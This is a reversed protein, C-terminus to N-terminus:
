THHLDNLLTLDFNRYKGCLDPRASIAPPSRVSHCSLWRAVEPDSLMSVDLHKSAQAM